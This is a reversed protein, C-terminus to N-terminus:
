SELDERDRRLGLSEAKIASLMNGGSLFTLLEFEVDIM